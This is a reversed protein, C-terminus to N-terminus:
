DSRELNRLKEILIQVNEVKTNPLIGHGLNFIYRQRNKEKEIDRHISMLWLNLVKLFTDKDQITLVVPDLNGQVYGRFHEFYTGLNKKWDVSICDIKFEKIYQLINITNLAFFIIPIEPYNKKLRSLLIKYMPLFIFEIDIPSLEFLYTDFIQIIDVGAEIQTKLTIYIAELILLILDEHYYILTKTYQSNKLLYYFSTYLGGSFGILTIKHQSKINQIALRLKHLIDSETKLYIKQIDTIKAVPGKNDEITYEVNEFLSFSVSIDSFVILADINLYKLPLTTLHAILEPNQLIQMFSYKERINRYEPLYRGSQRMLWIPFTNSTPILIQKTM